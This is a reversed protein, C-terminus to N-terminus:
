EVIVGTPRSPRTGDVDPLSDESTAMAFDDIYYYAGRTNPANNAPFTTPFRMQNHGGAGFGSWNFGPTVGGIWEHTKRWAGGYPRMWMEFKGSANNSTDLHIKILTWQNEQMYSNAASQVNPGLKSEPSYSVTGVSMDRLVFTLEGNTPSGYTSVDLPYATWDSTVLLWKDSHSPYGDNTPYLWKQRGGLNATESGYHPSYLWFQFWADGPVADAGGSYDLYFDTQGTGAPVEIKLVRSGAGPLPGSYGTTAQMESQTVTYLYGVAGPDTPMRKAHSWGGTQFKPIATSNAENRGVAYDFGDFLRLEAEARPSLLFLCAM